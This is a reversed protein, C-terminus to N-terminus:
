KGVVVWPDRKLKEFQAETVLYNEPKRTLVLGACRYKEYETKHSALVTIKKDQDGNPSSQPDFGAEKLLKWADGIKLGKEKCLDAVIENRKSKDPEAKLKEVWPILQEKDVKNQNGNPPTNNGSQQQIDAENPAATGKPAKPDYGAEKLLKFLEGEKINNEKAANKVMEARAEIEQAYLMTM